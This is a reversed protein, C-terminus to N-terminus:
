GADNFHPIIQMIQKNVQGSPCVLDNSGGKTSTQKFDFSFGESIGSLDTM